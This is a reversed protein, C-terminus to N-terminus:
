NERIDPNLRCTRIESSIEKGDRKQICKIQYTGPGFDENGTFQIDKVKTNNRYLACKLVNEAVWDAKCTTNTLLNQMNFTIKGPPANPDLLYKNGNEDIYYQEVFDEESEEDLPDDNFEDGVSVVITCQQSEGGAAALATVHYIGPSDYSTTYTSQSVGNETKVLRSSNVGRGTYWSFNAPSGSNNKATYTVDEDLALRRKSASCSLDASDNTQQICIPRGDASKSAVYGRPVKEQTGDINKCVDESVKFVVQGDRTKGTGQGNKVEVLYKFWYVDSREPARFYQVEESSYKKQEGGQTMKTKSGSAPGLNKHSRGMPVPESVRVSSAYWENSCYTFNFKVRFEMREGPEYVRVKPPKPNIVDVSTLWVQGAQATETKDFSIILVAVLCSLIVTAIFGINKKNIKKMKNKLLM